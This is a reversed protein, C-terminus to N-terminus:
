PAHRQLNMRQNISSLALYLPIPVHNDWWYYEDLQTAYVMHGLPFLLGGAQYLSDVTRRIVTTDPNAAAAAAAGALFGAVYAQKQQPTFQIWDRGDLMVWRRPEPAARAEIVSLTGLLVAGALAIAAARRVDAPL